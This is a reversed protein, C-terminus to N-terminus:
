FRVLGKEFGKDITEIWQVWNKIIYKIKLIPM